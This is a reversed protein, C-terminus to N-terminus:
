GLAFARHALERAEAERALLARAAGLQSRARVQNHVSRSPFRSADWGFYRENLADACFRAALEVYITLTATVIASQEAPEIWGRTEAAYGAVAGGFLDLSFSGSGRDEGAPNCWSRFADGLELPLAMPGLTDLDILCLAQGTAPDFLMNNIKPDGHVLRPRTAPLVPLAEATALIEAALPRIEGFRAHGEHDALAQRLNRLHRPTDHVGLRSGAFHHDLGDLARHFRGLLGGAARAQAADGLQDLSTGPVHSMLRYVRGGAEVWFAGSAAPLLEPSPWGQARLHRTVIRIDENVAAPFIPNLAQLVARRGDAELLWTQNILGSGLPAARAHALGYARLVEVPPPLGATM